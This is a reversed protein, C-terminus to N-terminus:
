RPLWTEALPRLHPQMFQLRAYTASQTVWTCQKGNAPHVLIADLLSQAFHPQPHPSSYSNPCSHRSLIARARPPLIMTGMAAWARGWGIVSWRHSCRCAAKIQRAWIASPQALTMSCFLCILPSTCIHLCTLRQRGSEAILLGQMRGIFPSISTELLDHGQCM